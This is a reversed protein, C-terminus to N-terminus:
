KAAERMPVAPMLGDREMRSRALAARAAMAVWSFAVRGLPASPRLYDLGVLSRALRTDTIM